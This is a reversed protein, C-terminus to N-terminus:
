HPHSIEGRGYPPNFVDKMMDAALRFYGKAFRTYTRSGDDNQTFEVIGHDTHPYVAITVPLGEEQLMSLREYTVKGPAARDEGALIWLQPMSLSRLVALPDHRWPVQADDFGEIKGSRLGEDDARLVAGTFEGEIQSFWSKNGYKNKVRKLEDFGNSFHSAVIEGTADTVERALEIEAEGYGARRMEDFVQEANEELPSVVLGFGVVLFDAGIKRAALPAVWGGQSGGFYGFRSYRGEALRQAEQAAASADAALAQFDQNYDGESQGTGRKDYVFVSVGQAAFLYPYPSYSITPTSESGHVFVALPPKRAGDASVPEILRGALALENSSFTTDTERLVTKAFKTQDSASVLGNACTLIASVDGLVGRRGDTFIYKTEAAGADNEREYLVVRDGGGEYVGPACRRHGPPFAACAGIWLALSLAM